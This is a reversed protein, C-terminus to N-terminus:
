RILVIEVGVDLEAWIRDATHAAVGLRTALALCARDALSFGLARTPARLRAVVAADDATFDLVTIGLAEADQRKGATDLGVSQYRQLVEVWNVASIAARGLLPEVASAGPEGRLVAIVASADLVSEPAASM